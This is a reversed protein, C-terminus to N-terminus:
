ATGGALVAAILLMTTVAVTLRLRLARYDLDLLPLLHRDVALILVFLPAFALLAVGIPLGLLLWALVAPTVGWVLRTRRRAQGGDATVGWHVAGLFSAILAAYHLMAASAQERWAPEPTVLLVGLCAAFPLLGAYGLARRWGRLDGQPAATMATV